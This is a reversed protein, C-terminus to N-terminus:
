TREPDRDFLIRSRLRVASSVTRHVPAGAARDRRPHPQPRPSNGLARKTLMPVCVALGVAVGPLGRRAGLLWPLATAALFTALGTHGLVRGAAMAGALAATGEPALVLTAGLAPSLGRGGAGGLWPSWDHGVIAAAAALAGLYVAMGAPAASSPASRSGVWRALSPGVAGKLVDLTGALALPWIGAVEFLGTGSVTGTGVQRLDAGAFQRAALQCFPVSGALYATGVVLAGLAARRASRKTLTVGDARDAGGTLRRRPVGDDAAHGRAELGV